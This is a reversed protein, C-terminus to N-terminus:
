STGGCKGICDNEVSLNMGAVLEAVSFFLM